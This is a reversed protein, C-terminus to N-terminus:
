PKYLKFNYRQMFFDYVWREGKCMSLAGLRIERM